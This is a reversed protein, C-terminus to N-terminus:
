AAAEEPAVGGTLVTFVDELTAEAAEVAAGDLAARLSAADHSGPVTIVHAIASSARRAVGEVSALRELLDVLGIADSRVNWPTGHVAERLRTPTDMALLHGGSMIGLRGCHEAEDMYHTTVFVTTGGDALEYIVDWFARRAEPDVGSTPEDLFLLPPEHILAIAMALRQRWGGALSGARADRHPDLGVMALMEDSRASLKSGSLGYVGGYFRLNEGVTLDEYLAFKQSMYGSRLRVWEPDAAVDHGLVVASGSTPRLLGLLMRITTTKGSGNPGLYGVVEGRAVDFSVGDVATFAGFRKTLDRVVIAPEPM